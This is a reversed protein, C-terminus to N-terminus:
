LCAAPPYAIAESHVPHHWLISTRGQVGGLVEECGRLGREWDADTARLLITELERRAQQAKGSSKCSVDM